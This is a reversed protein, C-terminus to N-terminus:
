QKGGRLTMGTPKEGPMRGWPVMRVLYVLAHLLDLHGHTSTREFDRTDEKATSEKWMGDSLQRILNVCSEDILVRGEKIQLRLYGVNDVLKRKVPRQYVVGFDRRLTIGAQEFCDVTIRINDELLRFRRAIVDRAETLECSLVSVPEQNFMKEATIVVQNESAVYVASLIGTNDTIGYDASICGLLWNQRAVDETFYKASNIVHLENKFEPVVMRTEDAVIEAMYERRWANSHEGGCEEKLEEIREKTLMPNDYVTYHFFGGKARIPPVTDLIFPHDIQEPPTTAYIRKPKKVLSQQPLLSSKLTMEYSGSHWFAVEDMLFTSCFPGRASGAKINDPHVGVLKYESGNPFIWKNKSKMPTPLMDVPFLNLIENMIPEMVEVALVLTPFCHKVVAGPEQLCRELGIVCLTFSKGFKRGSYVATEVVSDQKIFDYLERQTRNLLHRLNHRRILTQSKQHQVATWTQYM